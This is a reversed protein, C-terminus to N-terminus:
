YLLLPSPPEIKEPSCRHTDAWYRHSCTRLSTSQIFRCQVWVKYRSCCRHRPNRGVVRPHYLLCRGHFHLREALFFVFVSLFLALFLFLYILLFLFLFLFLSLFLSLFPSLHCSSSFHTRTRTLRNLDFASFIM